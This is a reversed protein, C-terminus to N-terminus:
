TCFECLKCQERFCLMVNALVPVFDPGLVDHPYPRWLEDANQLLINTLSADRQFLFLRVMDIDPEPTDFDGKRYM